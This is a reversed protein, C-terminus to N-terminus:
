YGPESLGQYPSQDDFGWQRLLVGASALRLKILRCLVTWAPSIYTSPAEFIDLTMARDPGCVVTIHQEGLPKRPRPAERERYASLYLAVHKGHGKFSSYSSFSKLPQRLGAWLLRCFRCGSAASQELDCLNKHLVFCSAADRPSKIDIPEAERKGQADQDQMEPSTASSGDYVKDTPHFDLLKCRSCWGKGNMVNSADRLHRIAGSGGLTPSLSRDPKLNSINLTWTANEMKNTSM